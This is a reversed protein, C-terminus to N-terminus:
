DCRILSTHLLNTIEVYVVYKIALFSPTSQKSYYRDLRLCFSLLQSRLDSRRIAGPLTEMKFLLLDTFCSTRIRIRSRPSNKHEQQLVPTISLKKTSHPSLYLSAKGVASAKHVHFM